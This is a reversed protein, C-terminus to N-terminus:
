TTRGHQQRTTTSSWRIGTSGRTISDGIFAYKITHPVPTPVPTPPIANPIFEQTQPYLYEIPVSVGKWVAIEDMKGVIGYNNASYAMSGFVPRYAGNLYNNTDTYTNGRQAGNIYLRTNTGSRTLIVQYPTNPPIISGSSIVDVTNVYYKVQGMLTYICPYLGQTLEPRSDYIFQYDSPSTQSVWARITFDGTGFAFDNQGSNIRMWSSASSQASASGFIPSLTNFTIGSASVSHERADDQYTGNLHSLFVLNNNYQDLPSAQVGAILFVIALIIILQKM